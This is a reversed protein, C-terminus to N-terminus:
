FFFVGPRDFLFWRYVHLDTNETYLTDLLVGAPVWEQNQNKKKTPFFSYALFPAQTDTCLRRTAACDRWFQLVFATQAGITVEVEDGRAPTPPWDEAASRKAPRKRVFNQLEELVAICRPVAVTWNGVHARLLNPLSVRGPRRLLPLWQHHNDCLQHNDATIARVADDALRVLDLTRVRAGLVAAVPEHTARHAYVRVGTDDPPPVKKPRSSALPLVANTDVPPQILCEIYPSHTTTSTEQSM